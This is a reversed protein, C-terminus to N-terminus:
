YSEYMSTLEKLTKPDIKKVVKQKKVPPKPKPIVYANEARKREIEELERQYRLKKKQLYDGTSSEKKNKNKDDVKKSVEPTFVVNSLSDTNESPSTSTVSTNDKTQQQEDNQTTLSSSSSSKDSLLRSIRPKKSIGIQTSQGNNNDIMQKTMEVINQSLSINKSSSSSKDNERRKKSPIELPDILMIKKGSSTKESSRHRKSKHKKSSSSDDDVNDSKDSRHKSKTDKYDHSSKKKSHSSSKSSKHHSKSKHRPKDDSDSSKKVYDKSLESLKSSTKEPTTSIVEILNIEDNTSNDLSTNILEDPKDSISTNNITSM